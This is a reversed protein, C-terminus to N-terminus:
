KAPLYLPACNGSVIASTDRIKLTKQTNIEKESEDKERERLYHWEEERSRVMENKRERDRWKM